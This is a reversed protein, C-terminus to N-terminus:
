RSTSLPSSASPAAITATAIAYPPMCNSCVTPAVYKGRVPSIRNSAAIAHSISASAGRSAERARITVGKLHLTAEAVQSIPNAPNREESLEIQLVALDSVQKSVKAFRRECMERVDETVQLNRGKVEIQM